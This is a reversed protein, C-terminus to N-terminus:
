VEMLEEEKAAVMRDIRAVGENTLSQVKDEARKLEDESIEGEKELEELMERADRRANRVAVKYEEAKAKVQRVMERRREETMQPIPLRIVEGDNQPTIGLESDFIAKEIAPIMSKDWPKVVILRPDAVTLSAVQNLPSKQGYYDVRVGDLISLNARGTRMRALERKLAECTEDIRGRFESIVDETM